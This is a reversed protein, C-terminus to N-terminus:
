RGGAHPDELEELYPARLIELGAAGVALLVLGLSAAILENM